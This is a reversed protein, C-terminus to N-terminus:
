RLRERRVFMATGVIMFVGGTVAMVLMNFSSSALVAGHGAEVSGYYAGRQLDVAYRLPSLRSLIDLIPQKEAFNNVPFFVGGLFFQPLLLFPFVQQAGRQSKMNVLIILGFVGGYLCVLVAVPILALVQAMSMDVGILLGFAFIVAGQALAVLSEGIIKGGVITYRSLPAVFVAQSFDNERDEILSIIGLAASQWMSQAFVGLFVFTTFDFTYESSAAAGFGNGLILIFVAPFVLTGFIRARDRLFKLLDRYAIAAMANLEHSLNM